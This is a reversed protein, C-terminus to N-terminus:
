PVRGAPWTLRWATPVADITRDQVQGAPNQVTTIRPASGIRTVLYLWSRVGQRRAANWEAASLEVAEFAARRTARVLIAIREGRPDRYELDWAARGGRGRPRRLTRAAGPPLTRRLHDAVFEIAADRQSGAADAPGKRRPTGM